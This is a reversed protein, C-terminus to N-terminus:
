PVNASERPSSGPVVLSSPRTVADNIWDEVWAAFQTGAQPRALYYGQAIDCGFEALMDWQAKTEVGEAVVRMRMAHALGLIAQVIIRAEEDRDAQTVFSRDIKLESFPMRHLEVLSSYGTGFDDLSVHIGKIRLRTLIDMTTQPDTMAMSETVELLLREPPLGNRELLEAVARPFELDTLSGASVNVAVSLDWGQDQWYRCARMAEDLVTRTMAVMLGNREALGVFQGPLVLGRVPDEWRVLAEAGTVRLTRMDVKPQYHVTLRGGDIADQLEEARVDAAREPLHSIIERLKAAKIPKQVTGLMSLGFGQGLRQASNLLRQDLGSVVLVQANCNRNALTRLVDVGDAGNLALDVLILDPQFDPLERCLQEPTAVCKAALGASRAIEEYYDRLTADDDLILARIEPM